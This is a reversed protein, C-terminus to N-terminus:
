ADARNRLYGGRPRRHAGHGDDDQHRRVGDAPRGGCAASLAAAQLMTQNQRDIEDDFAIIERAKENDRELLAGIAGSIAQCIMEGMRMLEENLTQLEMDYYKRTMM